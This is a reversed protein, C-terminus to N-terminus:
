GCWSRRAGEWERALGEAVLVSGLSEGDRSVIRLKRGYRDTERDAADLSVPGANLLAHLRRTARAGLEAERPCRSPHTEPADIDAVRIKEGDMWFTDGDVVCNVGGGTHCFGFRRAGGVPRAAVPKARATSASPSAVAKPAPMHGSGRDTPAPAVDVVAAVPAGGAGAGSDAPQGGFGGGFHVYGLGLLVGGVTMMLLDRVGARRRARTRRRRAM